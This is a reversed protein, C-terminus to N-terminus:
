KARKVRPHFEDDTEDESDEYPRKGKDEKHEVSDSEEDSSDFKDSKHTPEEYKGTKENYVATSTSAQDRGDQVKIPEADTHITQDTQAMKQEFDLQDELSMAAIQNLLDSLNEDRTNIIATQLNSIHQRNQKFFNLFEVPQLSQHLENYEFMLNSLMDVRVNLLHLEPDSPYEVKESFLNLLLANKLILSQNNQLASWLMENLFITQLEISKTEEDTKTSDSCSDLKDLQDLLDPLFKPIGEQIIDNQLMLTQYMEQIGPNTTCETFADDLTISNKAFFDFVSKSLQNNQMCLNILQVSSQIYVQNEQIISFMVKNFLPNNIDINAQNQTSITPNSNQVSTFLVNETTKSLEEQNTNEMGLVNM